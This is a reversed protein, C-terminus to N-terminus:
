GGGEIKFLVRTPAIPSWAKFKFQNYEALSIAAGTNALAFCFDSPAINTYSAVKASMNGASVDPNDIVGNYSGNIGAWPLAATGSEFNEFTRQSPKEAYINDFYYTNNDGPGTFPNFSILFTNLGTLGAGGSLDITYEVWQNAVTIPVFREIAGGGEIKFLFSVGAQPSWVSIKFQNYETLNVRSGTNVLMFNFDSAPSNTVSAVKASSNGTMDPNDVVAYTAGNVPNWNAQIGGNEYDEYLIYPAQGFASLSIFVASVLLLLVKRM